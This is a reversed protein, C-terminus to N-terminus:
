SSALLKDVQDSTMGVWKGKLKGFNAAKLEDVTYDSLQGANQVTDLLKQSYSSGNQAIQYMYVSSIIDHFQDFKIPGRATDLSTAYLADLFPQKDALNGNVKQLAAAIIQAGGYGVAQDGSVPRDPYAGKWAKVFDQTAATNAADSFTSAGIIGTAADKLQPLNSGGAIQSLIDIVQSKNQGAYNPYQQGFRLGDAGPEFAIVVDADPKLQSLYPGFDTTGVPAHLEQIVSGGHKVFAGAILDNLELGGAYDATFMVAKKYNKGAIWDGIIAQAGSNSSARVLYPSSYKPDITLYTAGCNGSVLLPVKAQQVYQAVVYCEPTQNIGALMDVKQNEVLDRVKANAVDPQGTTDAVVVQIQKGAVTNNQNKFFLQFGDQNDKGVAAVPGTLAELLGIKLTGSAAGSAATSAM